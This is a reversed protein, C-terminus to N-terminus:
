VDTADKLLATSYHLTNGVRTALGAEEVAKEDLIATTAPRYFPEGRKLSNPIDLSEYNIYTYYAALNSKLTQKEHPNLVLLQVWGHTFQEARRKDIMSEYTEGKNMNLLVVTETTEM